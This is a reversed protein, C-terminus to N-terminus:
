QACTQLFTGMLAAKSIFADYTWPLGFAVEFCADGVKVGGATLFPSTTASRRLFFTIACASDCHKWHKHFSRITQVAKSATRLLCRCSTFCLFCWSIIFGADSTPAKVQTISEIGHNTGDADRVNQQGQHRFPHKAAVGPAATTVNQACM